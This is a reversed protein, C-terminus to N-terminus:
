VYKMSLTKIKIASFCIVIYHSEASDLKLSSELVHRKKPSKLYVFITIRHPVSAKFDKSSWWEHVENWIRRYMVQATLFKGSIIFILIASLESLSPSVKAEM